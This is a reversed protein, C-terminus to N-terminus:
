RSRLGRFLSSTTRCSMQRFSISSRLASGVQGHREEVPVAAPVALALRLGSRQANRWRRWRRRATCWYVSEARRRRTARQPKSPISSRSRTRTLSARRWDFPIKAASVKTGDPNVFDVHYDKGRVFAIAGDSTVTWDDVTPLPNILSTISIGGRDDTRTELKIKPTRIVGVTDLKRTALDVFCSRPTLRSLSRPSVQEAELEEPAALSRAPEGAGVGGFRLGARLHLRGSGDFSPNGVLGGITGQTKPM